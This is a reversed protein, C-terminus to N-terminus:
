FQYYNGNNHLEANPHPHTWDDEEMADCIDETVTAVNRAIGAEFQQNRHGLTAPRTESLVHHRHRLPETSMDLSGVDKTQTSTPLFSTM